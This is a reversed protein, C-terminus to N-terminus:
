FTGGYAGILEAVEEHKYANNKNAHDLIESKAEVEFKKLKNARADSKLVPQITQVPPDIKVPPETALQNESIEVVAKKEQLPVHTLM